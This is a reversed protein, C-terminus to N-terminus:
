TEWWVTRGDCILNFLQGGVIIAFRSEHGFMEMRSVEIPVDGPIIKALEQVFENKVKDKFWQRFSQESANDYYRQFGAEALNRMYVQRTDEMIGGDAHAKCYNLSTAYYTSRSM